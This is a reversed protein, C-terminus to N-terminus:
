DTPYRPNLQLRFSLANRDLSPSSTPLPFIQSEPPSPIKLPIPFDLGLYYVSKLSPSPLPNSKDAYMLSMGVNSNRLPPNTPM